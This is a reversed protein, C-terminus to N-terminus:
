ELRRDNGVGDFSGKRLNVFVLEPLSFAIGKLGSWLTTGRDFPLVFV